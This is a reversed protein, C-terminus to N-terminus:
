RRRDRWRWFPAALLALTLLAASGWGQVLLLLWPFYQGIFSGRYASGRQHRERLAQEALTLFCMGFLLESAIMGALLLYFRREWRAHRRLAGTIAAVTGACVAAVLLGHAVAVAIALWLYVANM